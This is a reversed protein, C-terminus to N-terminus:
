PKKANKTIAGLTSKGGAKALDDSCRGNKRSKQEKRHLLSQNGCRACHEKVVTKGHHRRDKKEKTTEGFGRGGKNVPSAEKEPMM